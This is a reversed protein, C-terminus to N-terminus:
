KNRVQLLRGSSRIYNNFIDLKAQTTLRDHLITPKDGVVKHSWAVVGAETGSGRM